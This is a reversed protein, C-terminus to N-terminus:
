ALAIWRRQPHIEEWDEAKLPEACLQMRYAIGQIWEILMVYVLPGFATLGDNVVCIFDMHSPYDDRWEENLVISAVKKGTTRVRVSYFACGEEVARFGQPLLSTTPEFESPETDITLTAMTTYLHLVQSLPPM